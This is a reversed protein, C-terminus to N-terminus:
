DSQTSGRQGIIPKRPLSATEWSTASLFSTEKNARLEGVRKLKARRATKVAEKHGPIAAPECKLMM